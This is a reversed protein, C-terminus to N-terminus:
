RESPGAPHKPASAPEFRVAPLKNRWWVGACAGLALASLIAGLTLREERYVLRITHKGAPVALAQFAHNARWLRAPKRDVHARWGPHYSQAIVVMTPTDAEVLAELRRAFATTMKVRVSTPRAAKALLEAEKPLYVVQDPRFDPAFLAAITQPAEVFVPTQGATILPLFNTRAMWEVPNAPSSVHSVGLFDALRPFDNTPSGYLLAELEAQERLQLTAAGGVKPVGELVNLNSWMALRSGLFDELFDPLTRTMLLREARPSTMVRSQGFAPKPALEVVQATYASSGITPTLHPLHTQLDLWVVLLAGLHAVLSFRLTSWLGRTAVVALL